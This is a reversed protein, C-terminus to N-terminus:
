PLSIMLLNIRINKNKQTFIHRYTGGGGGGVKGLDTVNTFCSWMSRGFMKVDNKRLIHKVTSIIDLMSRLHLNTDKLVSKFVKVDDFDLM